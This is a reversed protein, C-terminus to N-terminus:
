VIEDRIICYSYFFRFLLSEAIDAQDSIGFAIRRDATTTRQNSRHVKVRLLFIDPQILGRLEATYESDRGRRERFLAPLASSVRWCLRRSPRKQNNSNTQKFLLLFRFVLDIM